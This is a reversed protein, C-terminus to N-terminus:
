LLYHRSKKLEAYIMKITGAVPISIFMGWIGFIGGGLVVSFLTWFGSIGITNGVVKPTLINNEIEQSLVIMGIVIVAKTIGYEAFANLIIPIVGIIPGFFPIMNSIAVIFSFFIPHSVNLIILGIAVIVGLMISSILKGYFYKIFIANTKSIWFLSKETKENGIFMGSIIVAFKKLERHELLIYILIIVSTFTKFVFSITEKAGTIYTKPTISKFFNIITEKGFFNEIIYYYKSFESYAYNLGDKLIPILYLIFFAISSLFLI